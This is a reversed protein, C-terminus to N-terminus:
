KFWRRIWESPPRRKYKDDDHDFNTDRTERIDQFVRRAPAQFDVSNRNFASSDDVNVVVEPTVSPQPQVIHNNTIVPKM